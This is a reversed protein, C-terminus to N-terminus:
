ISLIDLHRNFSLRRDRTRIRHCNACVIECKAIEALLREESVNGNSVKAIGFDKEYGPLHDFDMCIPEYTQKCDACPASKLEDIMKRFRAMKKQKAIKQADGMCKRCVHRNKEFRDLPKETGCRKCQKM